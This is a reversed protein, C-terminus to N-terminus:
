RNEEPQHTLARHVPCKTLADREASLAAIAQDLIAKPDAGPAASVHVQDRDPWIRVTFLAVGFHETAERRAQEETYFCRLGFGKGFVTWTADEHANAASFTLRYLEESV